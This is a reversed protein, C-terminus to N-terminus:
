LNNFISNIIKVQKRTSFSKIKDSEKNLKNQKKLEIKQIKKDKISSFKILKKNNKLELKAQKINTKYIINEQQLEKIKRESKIIYIGSIAFLSFTLIVYFSLGQIKTIM